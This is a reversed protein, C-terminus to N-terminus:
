CCRCCIAAIAAAGAARREAIMTYIMSDLRARAARARRLEPMPMWEIWRRIAADDDLVIGDSGYVGPRSGQRVLSTSEFLTKGAISLDVAVDRAGHRADVGARWQDGM